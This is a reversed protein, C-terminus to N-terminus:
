ISVVPRVTRAERGRMRPVPVAKDASRAITCGQARLPEQRIMTVAEDVLRQDQIVPSISNRTYKRRRHAESDPFRDDAMGTEGVAAQDM